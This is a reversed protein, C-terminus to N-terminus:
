RVFPELSSIIKQKNLYETSKPSDRVYFKRVRVFTGVDCEMIEELRPESLLGQVPVVHGVVPDIEEYLPKWAWGLM